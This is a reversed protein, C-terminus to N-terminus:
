IRNRNGYSPAQVSPTIDLIVASFIVGEKSIKFNKANLKTVINNAEKGAIQLKIDGPLKGTTSSFRIELKAKEIPEKFLLRFGDLPNKCANFVFLELTGVLLLWYLKKFKM